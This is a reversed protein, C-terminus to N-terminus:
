CSFSDVIARCAAVLPTEGMGRGVREIESKDGPLVYTRVSASVTARWYPYSVWGRGHYHVRGPPTLAVRNSDILWLGISEVPSRPNIGLLRYVEDYLAAGKLKCRTWQSDNM